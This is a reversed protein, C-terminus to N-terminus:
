FKLEFLKALIGEITMEKVESFGLKLLVKQSAINNVDALGVVEKLKLVNKGYDLAAQSSETAYGRGWYEPLMRYGLDTKDYDPLYKLGCFGIVLDSEKEVLAFRGYGFKEYDRHWIHTIVHKADDLTQVEDADGTYRTVEPNVSYNLVAEADSLEFHRLILRETELIM